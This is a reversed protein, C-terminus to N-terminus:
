DDNGLEDKDSRDEQKNDTQDIEQNIALEPRFQSFDRGQQLITTQKEENELKLRYQEAEDANAHIISAKMDVARTNAVFDHAARNNRSFIMMTYSILLAGFLTFFSLVLEVCFFLFRILTHWPKIRYGEKSVIGIGFMKKFITQGNGIIIPILFYMILVITALFIIATNLIFRFITEQIDALPPYMNLDVIVAEYKEQYFTALEDSDADDKEVARLSSDPNEENDLAYVFLGNLEPNEPDIELITENYWENSFVFPEEKNAYTLGNKFTSYYDYIADPYDNEDINVVEDGDLKYMGTDLLITDIEPKFQEPQYVANYFSPGALLFLLITVTLTFILDLFAAGNRKLISPNILNM